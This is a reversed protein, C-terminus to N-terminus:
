YVYSNSITLCTKNLGLYNRVQRTEVSEEHLANTFITLNRERYPQLVSCFLM